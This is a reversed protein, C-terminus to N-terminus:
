RRRSTAGANRLIRVQRVRDRVSDLLDQLRDPSLDALRAQPALLDLAVKRHEAYGGDDNRTSSWRGSTSDSDMLDALVAIEVALAVVELRTLEHQTLYEARWPPVYSRMM